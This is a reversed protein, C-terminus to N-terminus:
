AFEECKTEDHACHSKLWHQLTRKDSESIRTFQLGARDEESKSWIVRAESRITSNSLPLDFRLHVATNAPVPESSSIAMGAESLDTILVRLNFYQSWLDAEIRVRERDFARRESYTPSM